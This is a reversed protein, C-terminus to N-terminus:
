DPSPCINILQDPDLQVLGDLVATVTVTPAKAGGVTVAVGELM